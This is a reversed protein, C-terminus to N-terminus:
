FLAATRHMLRRQPLAYDFSAKHQTAQNDWVVLDGAQWVHRYQFAPRACHATLEAILAQSKAEPLGVIHTTYGENVYICKRGTVPHVRAVPHESEMERPTTASLVDTQRGSRRTQQYRLLMSNCARLGEIRRQQTPILADYALCTSAFLTDGLPRGADDHPVELAHLALVGHPTPMFSGDSHWFLGADFVGVHRHGDKVNSVVFIEPQDPLVFARMNSPRLAGFRASFRIQDAPAFEPGRLVLLQHRFLADRIHGFTADDLPHRLDVGQVLAGFPAHDIRQISVSM